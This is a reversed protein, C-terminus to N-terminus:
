IERVSGGSVIFLYKVTILFDSCFDAGSMTKVFTRRFKEQVSAMLSPQELVNHIWQCCWDQIEIQTQNNSKEKEKENEAAQM